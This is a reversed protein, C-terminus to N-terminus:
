TLANMDTLLLALFLVLTGLAGVFSFVFSRHFLKGIAAGLLAGTFAYLLLYFFVFLLPPVSRAWSDIDLWISACTMGLCTLTVWWFMDKLSFRM